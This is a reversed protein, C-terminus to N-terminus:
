TDCRQSPATLLRHQIDVLSYMKETTRVRFLQCKAQNIKEAQNELNRHYITIIKYELDCAILFVFYDHCSANLSRLCRWM